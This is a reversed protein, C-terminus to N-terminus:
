RPPVALVHKCADFSLAMSMTNEKMRKPKSSSTKTTCGCKGGRSQILDTDSKFLSIISVHICDRFFHHPIRDRRLKVTRSEVSPLSLIIRRGNLSAKLVCPQRQRSFRNRQAPSTTGIGSNGCDRVDRIKRRSSRDRRISDRSCPVCFERLRGNDSGGYAHGVTKVRSIVCEALCVPIRNQRTFCPRDNLAARRCEHRALKIDVGHTRRAFNEKSRVIERRKHILSRRCLTEDSRKM